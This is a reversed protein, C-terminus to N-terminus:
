KEFEVSDAANLDLMVDAIFRGEKMDFNLSGQYKEVLNKVVKTGYGHLATEKKTTRLSLVRKRSLTGAIPNTVRIFLYDQRPQIHVEIVPNNEGSVIAAEVANDMLNSLISCFDTEKFPLKDPVFIQTDFRIGHKKGKKIAHNVAADVVENGSVVTSFLDETEELVENIYDFLKDYEEKYILVRIYAMHNKIEHRILHLSELNDRFTQLMEENMQEKHAMALFEVNRKSERSVIYFLYYSFLELLFFIGAVIVRYGKPAEALNASYELVIGLFSEIVILVAPASPVYLMDEVAFKSIIVVLLILLLFLVIWTSHELWVKKEGFVSELVEGLPESLTLTQFYCAYYLSGRVMRITWNYRKVCMCYAVITVATIVRNLNAFGFWIYYVSSLLFSACWTILIKALIRRLNKWKMELKEFILVLGAVFLIETPLYSPGFAREIYFTQFYDLMRDERKKRNM